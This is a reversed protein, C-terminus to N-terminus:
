EPTKLDPKKAATPANPKEKKVPYEGFLAGAIMKKLYTGTVSRMEGKTGFKCSEAKCPCPSMFKDFDKRSVGEGDQIFQVGPCRTAENECFMVHFPVFDVPESDMPVFGSVRSKIIRVLKGDSGRVILMQPSDAVMVGEVPGPFNDVMLKLKHGVFEKM